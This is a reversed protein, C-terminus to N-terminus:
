DVIRKRPARRSGKTAAGEACQDLWACMQAVEDRIFREDGFANALTAVGQSRALLHM